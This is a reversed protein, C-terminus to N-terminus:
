RAATWGESRWVQQIFLQSPAPLRGARSVLCWDRRLPTGPCPLEALVGPYRPAGESSGRGQLQLALRTIDALEM